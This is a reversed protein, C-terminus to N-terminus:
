CDFGMDIGKEMMIMGIENKGEDSVQKTWGKFMPHM